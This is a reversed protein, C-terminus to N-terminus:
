NRLALLISDQVDVLQSTSAVSPGIQQKTRKGDSASTKLESEIQFTRSIETVLSQDRVGGRSWMGDFVQNRGTQSHRKKLMQGGLENVFRLEHAQCLRNKGANGGFGKM